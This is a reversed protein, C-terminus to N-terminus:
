LTHKTNAASDTKKRDNEPHLQKKGPLKSFFFFSLVRQRTQCDVETTMEFGLACLSFDYVAVGRLQVLVFACMGACVSSRLLLAERVKQTQKGM